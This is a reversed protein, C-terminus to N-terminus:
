RLLPGRRGSGAPTLAEPWGFWHEIGYLLLCIAIVALVLLVRNRSPPHQAWRKMRLLWFFNM